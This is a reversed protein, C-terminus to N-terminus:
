KRRNAELIGVKLRVEQLEKYLEQFRQDVQRYREANADIAKGLDIKSTVTSAQLSSIMEAISGAWFVAGVTGAVIWLAFGVFFSVPLNVGARAQEMNAM